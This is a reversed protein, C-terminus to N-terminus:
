LLLGRCFEWGDYRRTPLGGCKGIFDCIRSEASSGSHWNQLPRLLHIIKSVLMKLKLDLANKFVAELALLDTGSVSV